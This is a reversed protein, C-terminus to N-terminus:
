TTLERDKSTDWCISSPGLSASHPVVHPHPTAPRHVIEALEKAEVPTRIKLIQKSYAKPPPILAGAGWLRGWLCILSGERTALLRNEYQHLAETFCEWYVGSLHPDSSPARSKCGQLSRNTCKM